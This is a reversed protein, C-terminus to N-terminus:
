TVTASMCWYAAENVETIPISFPMWFSQRQRVYNVGYAHMEKVSPLAESSKVPQNADMTQLTERVMTAYHKYGLLVEKFKRFLPAPLNKTFIDACQFQTGVQVLKVNGKQCHFRVNHYKVGIHKSRQKCVPAVSIAVCSQNDEDIKVLEQKIGVFHLLKQLFRVENVCRSAAVYESEMTSM